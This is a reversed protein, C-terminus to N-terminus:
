WVRSAASASSRGTCRMRLLVEDDALNEVLHVNFSRHQLSLRLAERRDRVAEIGVGTYDLLRPLFPIDAFVKDTAPLVHEEPLSGAPLDIHGNTALHGLCVTREDVDPSISRAMDYVNEPLRAAPVSTLLRVMVCAPFGDDALLNDYLYGTVEAAADAMTPSDSGSDRLARSMVELDGVTFASLLAVSALLYRWRAGPRRQGSSAPM